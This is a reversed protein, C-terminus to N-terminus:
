GGHEMGALLAQIVKRVARRARHLRIRAALSSCGMAQGVEAATFGLGDALILVQRDKLSLPATAHELLNRVAVQDHASGGGILDRAAQQEAPSLGEWSTERVGRRQRLRDFSARVAVRAIWPGFPAGIRFGSLGTFARLFVEQAVDQVDEPRRFFGGVIRFVLRKYRQILAGFAERDGDLTRQVL